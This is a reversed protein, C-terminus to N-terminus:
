RLRETDFTALGVDGPPGFREDIVDRYQRFSVVYVFVLYLGIVGFTAILSLLGIPYKDSGRQPANDAVQQNVTELDLVDQDILKQYQTKEAATIPLEAIPQTKAVTTSASSEVFYTVGFLVALLLILIVVSDWLQGRLPQKPPEYVPWGTAPSMDSM